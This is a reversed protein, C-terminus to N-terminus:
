SSKGTVTVPMIKIYESSGPLWDENAVKGQALDLKAKARSIAIASRAAKRTPFAVPDCEDVCLAGDCKNDSGMPLVYDETALFVMYLKQKSM